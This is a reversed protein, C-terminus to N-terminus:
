RKGATSIADAMLTNKQASGRSSGFYYSLVQQASNSVYGVTSGLVTFVTATIGVDAIRIGGTLVNYLGWLTAGTLIGWICLVGVGLALVDKDTGHVTRAGQVDQLYAKDLDADIRRTELKLANEAELIRTRLEPTMGGAVLGAIKAEDTVSDGSSGGLLREALLAVAGGALPGGLATALGPAVAGVVEKWKSM